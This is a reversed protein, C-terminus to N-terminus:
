QGQERMWRRFKWWDWQALGYALAALVPWLLLWAWFTGASQQEGKDRRIAEDFVAWGFGGGLYCLALLYTMAGAGAAGVDPM